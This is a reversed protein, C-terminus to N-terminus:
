FSHITRRMSQARPASEGEIAARKLMEGRIQPWAEEFDEQTGGADLYSRLAEDKMEQARKQQSERVVREQRLEKEREEKEKQARWPASDADVEKLRKQFAREKEEDERTLRAKMQEVTEETM